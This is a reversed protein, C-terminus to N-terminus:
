REAELRSLNRYYRILAREYRAPYRERLSQLIEEREREPLQSWAGSELDVAVERTPDHDTPGTGKMGKGQAGRGPQASPQTGPQNAAQALQQGNAAQGQQAAQAAAMAQALQQSMQAAMQGRLGRLGAAAQSMTQSAQGTQGQNLQGSASNMMQGGEQMQAAMAPGMPPMGAMSGLESGIESAQNAMDPAPAPVMAAAEASMQEIQGIMGDLGELQDLWELPETAGLAEAMSEAIQREADRLSKLAESQQPLAKAPEAQALDAAAQDMNGIAEALSPSAPSLPMKRSFAETRDGISQQETALEASQASADAQAPEGTAGDEAQAPEGPQGEAEAPEGPQQEGPQPQQQGPDAAEEGPQAEGPQPQDANANQPAGEAAKQDAPRPSAAAQQTQAMLGEQDQIIESLENLIANQEDLLQALQSLADNQQALDLQERMAALAQALNNVAEQQENTANDTNGQNLQDAADTMDNAANSLDQAAQSEPEFSEEAPAEAEAPKWPDENKEPQKNNGEAPAPNELGGANEDTETNNLLNEERIVQDAEQALEKVFASLRDEAQALEERLPETLDRGLTETRQRLDQQDNLAQETKEILDDLASRQESPSLGVTQLIKLLVLFHVSLERQGGIALGFQSDRLNNRTQALRQNIPLEAAKSRFERLTDVFPLSAYREVMLRVEESVLVWDHWVADQTQIVRDHIEHRLEESDTGAMEIAGNQTTRIGDRQNDVIARMQELLNRLQSRYQIRILAETLDEILTGQAAITEHLHTRRQARELAQRAAVLKDVVETVEKKAITDMGEHAAVFEASEDNTMLRNNELQQIINQLEGAIKQTQDGIEQTRNEERAIRQTVPAGAAVMSITMLAMLFWAGQRTSGRQATM